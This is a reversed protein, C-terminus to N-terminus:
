EIIGWSKMLDTVTGRTESERGINAIMQDHYFQSKALDVDADTMMPQYLKLLLYNYAIRETSINKVYVNYLAVNEDKVSEVEELAKTMQTTWDALLQREWLKKDLANYFISRPGCYGLVDSQYNAFAKWEFFVKKMTDAAPGFYNEMFKDILANIDQDVNWTLKSYLYIKLWSWGTASGTQNSQGQDYIFDVNNEIAFKYTAQTTDFTNYPTLFYSFNTSYMWFYNTDSISAWAKLNEAYPANASTEDYFDKTYDGNTEAFYPIIHKNLVVKDDVPVYTGLSEDYKAPAANTAHYAFFVIKFDRAHPKGEESNFYDEVLESVGNLFIVISAAQSGNYYAKMANCSDCECLSQTDEHTMTILFKTPNNIYHEIIVDAVIRQMKAVEEPKGHATYCLNKNDTSFWDKNDGYISKPIYQSSNHVTKGGVPIVMDGFNTFRMRQATTKDSMLFQYNTARIGIDPVDTVDYNKLPIEKVNKDLYYCDVGFYDFNFLQTLLEYTAFQAAENSYGYLFISKGVTKINFGQNGLVEYDPTLEAADLITNQGIVIYKSDNNFTVDEAYLLPLFVGTAEVFMNTFDKAATNIRENATRSIVLSYETVGNQLIFAGTDTINYEHVTGEVHFDSINDIELGSGVKDPTKINGNGNEGGTCSVLFINSLLIITLILSLLSNIRFKTNKM